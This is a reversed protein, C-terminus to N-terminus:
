KRASPVWKKGNPTYVDPLADQLLEEVESRSFREVTGDAFAVNLKPGPLEPNEVLVPVQNSPTDDGQSPPLYLYSNLGLEPSAGPAVWLVAPLAAAFKAQLDVTGAPLSQDKQSAADAILTMMIQRMQTQSKVSRATDRAVSLAPLLLALMLVINLLVGMAGTAIGAIAMGRGARSGALVIVGLIIGVLGVPSICFGAIGCILSALALGTGGKGAETSPSTPSYPPTVTNM